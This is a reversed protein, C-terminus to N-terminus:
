RKIAKYFLIEPLHNPNKADVSENEDIEKLDFLNLFTPSFYDTLAHSFFEVIVKGEYLEVKIKGEDNPVLSADFVPHSVLQVFIGCPKLVRAIEKYSDDLNKLYHLSFRGMIIDFFNDAFPIKEYSGEQINEPDKVTKRALELMSSSIDIGYVETGKEELWLVDAGGGCGIDLMKKGRVSNLATHLKERSWDKRVSFFEKQNSIYQRGIQDYQKSTYEEETM